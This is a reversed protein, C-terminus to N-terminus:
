AAHIVTNVQQQHFIPCHCFIHNPDRLPEVNAHYHNLPTLWGSSPQTLGQSLMTLQWSSPLQLPATLIYPNNPRAGQPTQGANQAKGGSPTIHSPLLTSSHTTTSLGPPANVVGLWTTCANELMRDRHYKSEWQSFACIRAHNKQYAASQVSDMGQPPLELCAEAACNRSLLDLALDDNKPSWALILRVDRHLLFFITLAKHFCICHSHAKISRLNCIAQLVLNDALFFYIFPPPEIGEIYYTNSVSLQRPLCLATPM